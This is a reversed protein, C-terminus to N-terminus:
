SSGKRLPLEALLDTQGVEGRNVINARWEKAFALCNAESGARGHACPRVRRGGYSWSMSDASGLYLSYSRLGSTKVGFGHLM